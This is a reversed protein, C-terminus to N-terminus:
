TSTKQFAMAKAVEQPDPKHHDYYKLTTAVSSHGLYESVAHISMGSALLAMACSHRLAHPHISKGLAKNTINKIRRYLNAQDMMISPKAEIVFCESQINIRSRLWVSMPVYVIRMKSGKGLVNLHMSDDTSRTESLRCSALENLRCGTHFYLEIISGIKRHSPSPKQYFCFQLLRNVEELTLYQNRELSVRLQIPKHNSFFRILAERKDRFKESFEPLGLMFKKMAYKALNISAQSKSAELSKFFDELHSAKLDCLLCNQSELFDFFNKVNHAVIEKTRPSGLISVIVADLLAEQGIPATLNEEFKQIEM